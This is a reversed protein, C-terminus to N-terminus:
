NGEWLLQSRRFLVGQGDVGKADGNLTMGKCRRNSHLRLFRRLAVERVLVRAQGVLRSWVPVRRTVLM